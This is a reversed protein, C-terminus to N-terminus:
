LKGSWEWLCQAGTAPIPKDFVKVDCLEWGYRDLDYNGWHLEVSGIQGALVLDQTKVCQRLIGHGLICGFPLDSWNPFGAETFLQSFAHNHCVNEMWWARLERTNTKAAHIALRQGILSVPAKWSRTEVRKIPTGDPRKVTMASAWPQWLSIAKM